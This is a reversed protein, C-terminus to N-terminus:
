SNAKLYGYCGNCIEVTIGDHTWTGILKSKKKSHCRACYFETATPHRTLTLTIMGAEKIGHKAGLLAESTTEPRAAGASRLRLLRVRLQASKSFDM